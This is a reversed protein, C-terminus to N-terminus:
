EVNMASMLVGRLWIKLGGVVVLVLGFVLIDGILVAAEAGAAGTEAAAM